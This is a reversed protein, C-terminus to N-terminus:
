GNTGGSGPAPNTQGGQGSTGGNQQGSTQGQNQGSSQDQSGQTQDGGNQQQYQYQQQAEAARRAREAAEAAARAEAEQRAQMSARVADVAQQLAATQDSYAKPDGANLAVSSDILRRLSERTGEDQVRGASEDYVGQAEQLMSTLAGRADNLTKASRSDKVKGIAAKLKGALDDARERAEDMTREGDKLEWLLWRNARDSPLSTRKAEKVLGTLSSLTGADSVQGSTVQGSLTRAQRLAKAMGDQARKAATVSAEYVPFERVTIVGYAVCACVLAALAAVMVVMQRSWARRATATQPRRAAPESSPAAAGHVSGSAASAAKGGEARAAPTERPAEPGSEEAGSSARDSAEADSAAKEGSAHGAGNRDASGRDTGRDQGADGAPSSASVTRTGETTKAGDGANGGDEDGHAGRAPRAEDPGTAHVWDDVLTPWGTGALKLDEDDLAVGDATGDGRGRADDGARSPRRSTPKGGGHGGDDLTPWELTHFDLDFPTTRGGDIDPSVGDGDKPDGGTTRERDM